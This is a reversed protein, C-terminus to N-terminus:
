FRSMGGMLAQLPHCPPLARPVLLCFSTSEQIVIHFFVEQWALIAAEFSSAFFLARLRQIMVSIQVSHLSDVQICFTLLM